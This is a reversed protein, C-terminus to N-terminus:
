RLGKAYCRSSEEHRYLGFKPVPGYGSSTYLAIAEPQETGTELVMRTRGVVTATRELETLVARALGRRQAAPVVHMRKLEADGDRLGTDEAARTRWGGMAVPAGGLRGLLFVGHPHRFQDASLVTADSAGYRRVYEAQVQGVLLQVDPHDYSVSGLVWGSM